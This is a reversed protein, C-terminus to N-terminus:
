MSARRPPSGAGLFLDLYRRANKRIDFREEVRRRGNAGLEQALAANGALELLAQALAPPNRPPVLIGTKRDVVIEGIATMKTAIVPLQMAMAEILVNPTVDRGGGRAMVSPLAFVDAQAYEQLVRDFPLAGAFRVADDLGLRQCLEALARSSGDSAATQAGGVIVCRFACGRERLVALARLLFEFGKEEILRGVSLIRLPGDPTVRTPRPVFRAPDVGEYVVAIPVSRREPVTREIFARNFESSTVIFKAHAFIEALASRSRTSYLDTSARAQVSYPVGAMRAALLVIFASLNAWPSHLHTIGCELVNGALALAHRFIRLDERPRKHAGYRHVATYAFANLAGLRDRHLARQRYSRSREGDLPLLYHTDAVFSRAEADLVEDGDRDDAFVEVDLGAQRLAGVERHVYTDTLQPFRWVYYGVRPRAAANGARVTGLPWRAGHEVAFRYVRLPLPARRHVDAM